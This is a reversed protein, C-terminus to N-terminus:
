RFSTISGLSEDDLKNLLLLRVVLCYSAGKPNTTSSTRGQPPISKKRVAAYEFQTRLGEQYVRILFGEVSSM